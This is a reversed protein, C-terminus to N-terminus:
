ISWYLKAMFFTSISVTFFSFIQFVVDQRQYIVTNIRKWLWIWLLEKVIKIWLTLIQIWLLEKVEFLMPMTQRDINNQLVVM